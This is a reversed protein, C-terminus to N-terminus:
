VGLAIAVAVLVIGGILFCLGVLRPKGVTYRTWWYGTIFLLGLLVGNSVRLALRADDILLFPIAAPLSAFFVLWFSAVGGM